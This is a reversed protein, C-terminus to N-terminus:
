WIAFLGEVREHVGITVEHQLERLAARQGRRKCAIWEGQLETSLNQLEPRLASVRHEREIRRGPECLAAAHQLAADDRRQEIERHRERRM